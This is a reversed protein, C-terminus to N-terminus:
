REVPQRTPFAPRCNCAWALRLTRQFPGATQQVDHQALLFISMPQDLLREATNVRPGTAHLLSDNVRGGFRGCKKLMQHSSKGGSPKVEPVQSLCIGKSNKRIVRPTPANIM